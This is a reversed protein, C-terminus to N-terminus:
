CGSLDEQQMQGKLGPQKCNSRGHINREQLGRVTTSGKHRNGLLNWTNQEAKLITM